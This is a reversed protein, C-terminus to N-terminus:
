AVIDLGKIYEILSAQKAVTKIVFSPTITSDTANNSCVYINVEKMYNSDNTVTVILSKFTVDNGNNKFTEGEYKLTQTEFYNFALYINESNNLTVSSGTWNNISTDFSYAGEFISLLINEKTSNKYLKVLENYEEDNKDYANSNGYKYVNIMDAQTSTSEFVGDYFTSKICALCITTVILAAILSLCVIILIRKTKM